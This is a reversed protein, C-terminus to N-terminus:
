DIVDIRHKECWQRAIREYASDKYSYWQQELSLDYLEDKFRRFAGRGQIARRLIDQSKGTPIESIFEEMIRYENIDYQGPLPIYDEIFGEKIEEMLEPNEEGDVMGGFVMLIQENKTDYYYETDMSAFDMAEIIDELKVKMKWKEMGAKKSM